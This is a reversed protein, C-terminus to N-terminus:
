ELHGQQLPETTLSCMRGYSFVNQLLLVCETTLGCMRDYCFVNQLLLVCKVTDSCMRYCRSLASTRYYSFVNQLLLVCETTLSCMRYYSFMCVCVYARECQAEGVKREQWTHVFTCSLAPLSFLVCETTLSCMRYYSFVNQLLYVSQLLLVRETTRSCARYYSFVNEQWTHVCACVLVAFHQRPLLM